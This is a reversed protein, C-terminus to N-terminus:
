HSSTKPAIAAAFLSSSFSSMLVGLKGLSPSVRLVGVTVPEGRGTFSLHETLTHPPTTDGYDDSNGTSVSYDATNTVNEADAVERLVASQAEDCRMIQLAVTPGRKNSRRFIRKCSEHLKENESTDGEWLYGRGHLEEAAHQVVLYLKSTNIHGYLTQLCDVAIAKARADIVVIQAEPLVTTDALNDGFVDGGM